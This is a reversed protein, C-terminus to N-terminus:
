IDMYLFITDRVGEVSKLDDLHINQNANHRHYHLSLVM